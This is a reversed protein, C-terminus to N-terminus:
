ATYISRQNGDNRFSSGIGDESTWCDLLIFPSILQGSVDTADWSDINRLMESSRLIQDRFQIVSENCSNNPYVLIHGVMAVGTNNESNCTAAIEGRKAM